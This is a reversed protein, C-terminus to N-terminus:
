GAHARHRRRQRCRSHTQSRSRLPPGASVTDGGKVVDTAKVRILEGNMEFPIRRTRTAIWKSSACEYTKEGVKVLRKLPNLMSVEVRFSDSGVSLAGNASAAIPHEAGDMQAKFRM